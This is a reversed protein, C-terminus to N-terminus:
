LAGSRQCSCTAPDGACLLPVVTLQRCTHGPQQAASAGAPRGLRGGLVWRQCRWASSRPLRMWHQKGGRWTAPAMCGARWLRLAPTRLPQRRKRGAQRELPPPPPLMWRAWAPSSSASRQERRRCRASCCSCCPRRFPADVPRAKHVTPPGTRRCGSCVAHCRGRIAQLPSQLLLPQAVLASFEAESPQLGAMAEAAGLPVPLNRFLAAAARHALCSCASGAPPRRRASAANTATQLKVGQRHQQWHM